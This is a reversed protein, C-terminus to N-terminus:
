MHYREAYGRNAGTPSGYISVQSIFKNVNVAVSTSSVTGGERLTATTTGANGRIYMCFSPLADVTTSSYTTSTGLYRTPNLAMNAKATASNGIATQTLTYNTYMATLLTPFLADKFIISSLAANNIINSFMTTDSFLDVFSDYNDPNGGYASVLTKTILAEDSIANILGKAYPSTNIITMINNNLLMEAFSLPDSYCEEFTNKTKLVAYPYTTRSDSKFWSYWALALGIGFIEGSLRGKGFAADLSNTNANTCFVHFASTAGQVTLLKSFAANVTATDVSLQLLTAVTDSLLNGKNNPTGIESTGTGDNNVMVDAFIGSNLAQILQVLTMSESLPYTKIINNKGNGLPIRDKM